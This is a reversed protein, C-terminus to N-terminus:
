NGCDAPPQEVSWGGIGLTVIENLDRDQLAAYPLFGADLTQTYFDAVRGDSKGASTAADVVYDTVLVIKDRDRYEVLQEMRYDVDEAPQKQTEDYFLDEIGIGDIAAFYDNSLADLEYEDDRIIDEANQPFVLFNEAGRRVRAYEAITIVWEIMRARAVERSLENGGEDSSWYEYADIIDLYVGDFGADIIRDLPTKTPGDPTGLILAQWGADWYRVKYNGGFNPNSPGLWAPAAGAIPPGEDGSVWAPNWYDRYDEAEGVSLYALVIKGGCPGETRLRQVDDFSFESAADGDVSPEIVLWHFSSNVLEDFDVGDPQLVYLFGGGTSGADGRPSITAPTGGPALRDDNPAAGLDGGECGIMAALYLGAVVLSRYAISRYM